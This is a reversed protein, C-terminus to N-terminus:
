EQWKKKERCRALDQSLNQRDLNWFLSQMSMGCRGEWKREVQYDHWVSNSSFIAWMLNLLQICITKNKRFYKDEDLFLNQYWSDWALHFELYSKGFSSSSWYSLFYMSKKKGSTWIHKFFPLKYVTLYVPTKLKGDRMHLIRYSVGCKEFKESENEKWKLIWM